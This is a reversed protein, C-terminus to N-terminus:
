EWFIVHSVFFVILFFSIFHQVFIQMHHTPVFGSLPRSEGVIEYYEKLCKRLPVKSHSIYEIKWMFIALIPSGYGGISKWYLLVDQEGSFNLYNCHSDSSWAKWHYGVVNAEALGGGVLLSLAICIALAGKILIHFTVSSPLELKTATELDLSISLEAIRTVFITKYGFLIWASLDSILYCIENFKYEKSKTYQLNTLISTGAPYRFRLHLNCIEYYIEIYTGTQQQVNVNNVEINTSHITM